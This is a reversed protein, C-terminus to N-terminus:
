VCLADFFFVQVPDSILQMGVEDFIEQHFDEPHLTSLSVDGIETAVSTPVVLMFVVQIRPTFPRQEQSAQPFPM